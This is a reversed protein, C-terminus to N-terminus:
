RTVVPKHLMKKTLNSETMAQVYESEASQRVFKEVFELKQFITNICDTSNRAHVFCLHLTHTSCSCWVLNVDKMAKVISACNDTVGAVVECGEM